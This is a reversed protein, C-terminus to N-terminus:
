LYCGTNLSIVNLVSQPLNFSKWDMINFNNKISHEIFSQANNLIKPDGSIEIFCNSNAIKAIKAKQKRKISPNDINELSQNITIGYFRSILNCIEQPLFRKNSSLQSINISRTTQSANKKDFYRQIFIM